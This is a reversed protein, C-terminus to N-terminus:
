SRGAAVSEEVIDHVFQLKRVAPEPLVFPYLNRCGMSRDLGNLAVALPVWAETLDESDDFSLRGATV